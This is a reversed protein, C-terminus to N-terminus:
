HLQQICKYDLINKAIITFGCNNDNYQFLHNKLDKHYQYKIINFLNREKLYNGFIISLNHATSNRFLLYLRCSKDGFERM